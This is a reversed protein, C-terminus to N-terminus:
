RKPQLGMLRLFFRGVDFPLLNLLRLGLIFSRPFAVYAKNAQMGAVIEAAALEASIMGPRHRPFRDSMPTDVFGPCIVSVGIGEPALLDRLAEGYAKVGAKSASYAPTLAMGRWAALSSMLGIQGHGRERLLPLAAYVTNLVGNLNVALLGNAEILPELARDPSISGTVGANAFVWDIPHMEDFRKFWISLGTADTVDIQGIEVLAGKARCLMGVESLKAEQRGVLGLAVGPAALELALARGIGSSAGTIVVSKPTKGMVGEM